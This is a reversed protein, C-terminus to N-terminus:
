IHGSLVSLTGENRKKGSAFWSPSGPTQRHLCWGRPGRDWSWRRTKQPGLRLRLEVTQGRPAGLRLEMTEDEPGGWDWSWRRTRQPGQRLGLGMARGPFAWHRAHSSEESGQEGTISVWLSLWKAEFFQSTWPQRAIFSDCCIHHFSGNSPHPTQFFPLVWM